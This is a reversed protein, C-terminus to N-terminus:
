WCDFPIYLYTISMDPYMIIIIFINLEKYTYFTNYTTTQAHWFLSSFSTGVYFSPYTLSLFRSSRHSYTFVSHSSSFSTFYFAVESVITALALYFTYRRIFSNIYLPCLRFVVIGRERSYQILLTSDWAYLFYMGTRSNFIERKNIKTETRTKRHMRHSIYIYIRAYIHSPHQHLVAHNRLCM